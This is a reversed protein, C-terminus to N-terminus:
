SNGGLLAISQDVLKHQASENNGLQNKLDAEVKELAMATVRQRIDAIAREQSATTDQSAADKVRQIEQKAEALIQEKAKSANTKANALIKQAEAQAQTLKEQEEALTAAATKQNAEAEAIAAEIDERRKVLSKGLFGRGFYILLGIVIVLNILNAELIDFNLSYGGAEALQPFGTISAVALWNFMGM